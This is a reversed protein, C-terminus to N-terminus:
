VENRQLLTMQIRMTTKRFLEILLCGFWRKRGPIKGEDLQGGELFKEVLILCLIKYEEGRMVHGLYQRKRKKIILLERSKKM